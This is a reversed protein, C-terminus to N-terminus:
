PRREALLASLTSLMLLADGRAWEDAGTHPALHAAQMLHWRIADLRQKKTRAEREAQSPAKWGPGQDEKEIERWKELARRVSTVCAQWGTTGGREFANRADVLAKWVADWNGPPSEPIPIEVLVNEAIALNRIMKIWVERPYSVETHANRSYVRQPETFVKFSQYKGVRAREGESMQNWQVETIEDHLPLVYRWEGELRMQLNPAEGDRWKEVYAIDDLTGVWELYTERPNYYSEGTSIGASEWTPGILRGVGISSGSKAKVFVKGSLNSVVLRPENQSLARLTLVIPVLMEFGSATRTAQLHQPSRVFSISGIRGGASEIEIDETM